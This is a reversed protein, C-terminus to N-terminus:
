KDGKIFYTIDEYQRYGCTCYPEGCSICVYGNVKLKKLLEAQDEKPVNLEIDKTPM